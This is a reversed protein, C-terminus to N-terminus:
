DELEAPPTCPANRIEGSDGEVCFPTALDPKALVDIDTLAGLFALLDGRQGDDLSFGAILPSKYPNTAGDGPTPGSLVERGGRAYADILDGLDLVTGDHTWPGTETVGRLSPTRFRGMDAAEGTLAHLGTEEPPYGGAGDINYLGTNHYGHADLVEGDEDTPQEFFLGGHCRSCRLEPSFFLAMGRREADDLAEDDGLLYQDYPSRGGIITRQFSGLARQVNALRLPADEDPYAAVFLPPYLATESLRSLLMTETMGMEVPADGSLPTLLQDELCDVAPNQWTLQTRWGVNLLSLTNRTHKESTAGVAQVFGDVFGIAQEHCIGCSRTGNVSLRIDYFLYRGLAVTEATLPSGAPVPLSPFHSPVNLDLRGGTSAPQCSILLWAWM